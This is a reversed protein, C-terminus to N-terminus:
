EEEATRCPQASYAPELLTLTGAATCEAETVEIAVDQREVEIGQASLERCYKELRSKALSVAEEKSYTQTETHYLRQEMRGLALPLVFNETLRVPHLTLCRDQPSEEDSFFGLHLQWGFVRVVPYWARKEEYVRVRRALPFSDAYAEETELLIDADAAVYRRSAVEGSDDTIELMGSVIVDGKKVESGPLAAPTGRRTVVSRVIGDKEAALDSPAEKDSGSEEPTQYSDENEKIELILRTGKLKASVWIMDPFERRLEAALAPCDVSAKLTGHAVNRSKLYGLIEQTTNAHNGEIHINWVFCSLTYLLVGALFVGFVYAKRKASRRLFFPLGCKKLVLVRSGTKRCFPQLRFFDRVLICCEYYRGGHKLEWLEIGAHACLNLFREPERSVLRIHVYGRLFRIGKGTM